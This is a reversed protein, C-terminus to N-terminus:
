WYEDDLFHFGINEETYEYFPSCGFEGCPLEGDEDPYRLFKRYKTLLEPCNKLVWDKTATICWNASMDIVTRVLPEADPHYKSSWNNLEFYVIEKGM